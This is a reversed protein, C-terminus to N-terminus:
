AGGDKGTAEAEQDSPLKRGVGPMTDIKWASLLFSWPSLTIIVLM